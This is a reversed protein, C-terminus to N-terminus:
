GTVDIATFGLYCNLGFTKGALQFAAIVERHMHDVFPEGRHLRPLSQLPSRSLNLRQICNGGAQNQLCPETDTMCMLSTDDSVSAMRFACTGESMVTAASRIVHVSNHPLSGGESDAPYSVTILLGWRLVM